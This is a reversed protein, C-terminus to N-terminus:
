LMRVLEPIRENPYTMDTTRGSSSRAGHRSPASAGSPAAAATAASRCSDCAPFRPLAEELLILTKDTSADDVVLLEYPM